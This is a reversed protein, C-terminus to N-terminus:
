PLGLELDEAGWAFASLVASPCPSDFEVVLGVVQDVKPFQEVAAEAAVSMPACSETAAVVVGALPVIQASM